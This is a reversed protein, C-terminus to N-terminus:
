LLIVVHETPLSSGAPLQLNVLHLSEVPKGDRMAPQWLPAEAVAREVRKLFQRSTSQLIEHLSIRGECDVKIRLSVREAPMGDKWCVHAALYETFNTFGDAAFSASTDYRLRVLIVGEMAADGWLAITEDDAPLVDISEIDEHPIHDISEVVVGNVVYMPQRAMTPVVVLVAAFLLFLRRM